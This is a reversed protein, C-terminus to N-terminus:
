VGPVLHLEHADYGQERLSRVVISTYGHTVLIRKAGTERVTRMLDPWDVHDSMAFGIDATRRQRGNRLAMWGSAVATAYPEVHQLWSANESSDPAIILAGSDVFLRSSDTGGFRLNSGSHEQSGAEHLSSHEIARTEPLAIGNARLMTNMKEVSGHTYFPGISTDLTGLLRQAKGLAYAHVISTIGRDRNSRWWTNMKEAITDNSEWRYVPMGFTSETIFTDCQVIEYPVAFPDAQRKYDGSVVWVEGDVEVRVQASGIVHGAPHLSVVADNIRIHEGYALPATVINAGLRHKLICITDTHTTYLGMGKRAHDSHAHTIVAHPVSRSPDIHFDGAPCYLGRPTNILVPRSVLTCSM